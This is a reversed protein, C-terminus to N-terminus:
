STSARQYIKVPESIKTVDGRCQLQVNKAGYMMGVENLQISNNLLHKYAAQYCTLLLSELISYPFHQDKWALPLSIKPDHFKMTGTTKYLCAYLGICASFIFTESMCWSKTFDHYHKNDTFFATTNNSCETDGSDSSCTWDMCTASLTTHTLTWIITRVTREHACGETLSIPQEIWVLM